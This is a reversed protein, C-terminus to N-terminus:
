PKYFKNNFDKFQYIPTKSCQYVPNSNNTASNLFGAFITILILIAEALLIFEVIKEKKEVEKNKKYADNIDKDAEGNSIDKQLSRKGIIQYINKVTKANQILLFSSMIAFVVILAPIIKYDSLITIGSFISIIITNATLLMNWYNITSERYIDTFRNIIKNDEKDM